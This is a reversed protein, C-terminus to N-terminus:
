PSEGSRQATRITELLEEMSRHFTRRGITQAVVGPVLGRRHAWSGVRWVIQSPSSPKESRSFSERRIRVVEDALWLPPIRLRAARELLVTIARRLQTEVIREFAPFELEFIKMAGWLVGGCNAIYPPVYRISRQHLVEELGACAQLNSGGCIIRAKVDQITESSISYLRACPAYIDVPVLAILPSPLPKILPHHNVCDSGFRSRLDILQEVEIGGEDLITGKGTSVAVVRAGARAVLRALSSGVNGFGEISITKGELSSGELECACQMATFVTLATARGASEATARGQEPRAGAAELIIKLDVDSIGLDCGALYRGSRLWPALQSGCERLKERKEEPAMDPDGIIGAKAGGLKIGCFGFKSTMMAALDSLEDSTLNPAMRIGGCLREGAVSDVAFFGIIEQRSNVLTHVGPELPPRFADGPM